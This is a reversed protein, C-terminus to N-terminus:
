TCPLRTRGAAPDPRRGPGRRHRLQHGEPRGLGGRVVARDIGLEDMLAVRAKTEFAAPQIDDYSMHSFSLGLHKNGDRDVIASSGANGLVRGDFVWSNRGDVQEVRPVRDAFRAPARSTWLDAPETLHTDTDIVLLDAFLEKTENSTTM